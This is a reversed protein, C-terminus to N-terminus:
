HSTSPSGAKSRAGRRGWASADGPVVNRAAALLLAMAIDATADAMVGPTNSVAIGRKACAAADIHDTGVGFNAVVRVAPFRDLVADSVKVHQHVLIAQIQTRVDEAVDGGLFDRVGLMTVDFREDVLRQHEPHFPEDQVVRVRAGAAM